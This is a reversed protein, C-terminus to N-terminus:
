PREASLMCVRGGHQPQGHMAIGPRPSQKSLEIKGGLWYSGAASDCGAGSMRCTFKFQKEKGNKGGGNSMAPNRVCNIRNEDIVNRTHDLASIALLNAVVGDAGVAGEDARKVRSAQRHGGLFGLEDAGVVGEKVGDAEGNGRCVLRINNAFKTSVNEISAGRRPGEALKV